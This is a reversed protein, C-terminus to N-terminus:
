SYLSPTAIPEGSEGTMGIEHLVKFFIARSVAVWLGEAPKALYVVCEDDSWMSRDLQSFEKVMQVSDM